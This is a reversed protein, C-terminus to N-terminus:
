QTRKLRTSNLPRLIYTEKKSITSSFISVSTHIEINYKSLFSIFFYYTFLYFLYGFLTYLCAHIRIFLCM